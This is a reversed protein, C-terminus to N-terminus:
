LRADSFGCIADILVNMLQRYNLLFGRIYTCVKIRSIFLRRVPIISPISFERPLRRVGQGSPAVRCRTKAVTVQAQAGSSLSLLM